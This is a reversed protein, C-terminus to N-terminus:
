EPLLGKIGTKPYKYEQYEPILMRKSEATLEQVEAIPLFADFIKLTSEVVIMRARGDVRSEILSIQVYFGTETSKGDKTFPHFKWKMLSENILDVNKQNFEKGYQFVIKGVEGSKEVDVRYLFNQDHSRYIVAGVPIEISILGGGEIPIESVTPQAMLSVKLLVVLCILLPISKM